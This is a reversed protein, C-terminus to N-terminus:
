QTPGQNPHDIAQLLGRPYSTNAYGELGMARVAAIVKGPDADEIAVTRVKTGNAIVDALEASCGRIHFRTRTKTVNVIRVAGDPSNLSALLRDLTINEAAIPIAQVGLASNVAAIAAASLPFPEKLVPRWRELRDANVADLRKIDILQNRIKVNGDSVTGLLYIEESEQVSEVPLAALKPEAGGFEQGFARWEWRSRVEDM